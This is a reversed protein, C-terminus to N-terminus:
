DQTRAARRARKRNAVVGWEVDPRLSECLVPEGLQRTAREIAPCYEAPVNGRQRWMFPASPSAGALKALATQGGAIRAARDLAQM